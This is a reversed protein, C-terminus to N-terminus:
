IQIRKGKKIEALMAKRISEAYENVDEESTLEAHAFQITSVISSGTVYQAVRKNEGAKKPQDQSIFEQVRTLLEAFKIEEFYRLDDRIKAILFQTNMRAQLEAIETLLEQQQSSKLSSFDKMGKLQESKNQLIAFARNREEAVKGSIENKLAEVLTKLQQINKSTYIEPDAILQQFNAVKEKEIYDFNAAQEQLFIRADDFIKKLPGAWFNQIPLIIKEKYNLLLEQSQTFEKLYFGYPKKVLDSLFAIPESLKELFPYLTKNIMLQRLTQLMIELNAATEKGLERAENSEAPKDFFDEFFSKLQRIQSATYEVVPELILNQHIQTNRLARALDANELLNGDLRVEIKSHAYLLALNCQIAPLAWGYPKKEFKDDLSKFTTRIGNASNMLIFSLIENEPETLQNGEMGPLLNGTPSLYREIDNEVYTVNRLMSLNPYTNPILKYFGQKIRTEPDTGGISIETGSIYMRSTSILERVRDEIHSARDRNQTGKSELISRKSEQLAQTTNQRIYKDTRKYMLLDKVLKDDPSCVILLEDRGMSRMSLVKENGIQENLPSAIHIILEYERGSVHDDTKKTFHFDQGNLDYRIKPDRIIRDFIIKSLDEYVSDVDIEIDKIETEIDKEENTLFEYLDGNRQIYSQSELINLAEEVKKQHATIDLNFRDIMLISINHLTPKFASIYKVLFLAKLVQIALQNDLNQEASNISFVIKDKLILRLGEYMLDFTALQGVEKDKITMAVLQFVGLMSREGVSSHKGNFANHASLNVISRQFLDFQYLPFPYSTIFQNEDRFNRLTVSGDTFDFLTGFNNSQKQYIESILPRGQINKELLRKQIVETVNKSTLKIKTKFRAQIKSFDNAERNSMEGLVADMDEQATVIIWARGKSKTALSEAVTQLNTMLRIRDAIYQGAEDVLFALRFTPGKKEIYEAVANAFDEISVHYDRQYKDIINEITNAPNQIVESYAKSINPEELVSTERGREWDIGSIKKYAIKFKDLLGLQDLDREFKAIYGQKGYYGCKEDFVKVFVKLLADEQDLAILDAKQDINFLISESPISAAKEIRGILIANNECKPIFLDVTRKGNIEKNELLLSVMKLLHSKGSGFFGSIWVGNAGQYDTYAEFFTELERAIENTVVYEEIENLLSSEDDAKIVGEITRAIDKSFIQNLKM